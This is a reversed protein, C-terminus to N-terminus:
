ARLSEIQQLRSGACQLSQELGREAIVALVSTIDLDANYYCNAITGLVNQSCDIIDAGVSLNTQGALQARYLHRKLKGLNTTRAIVEQGVYCGKKLSMGNLRDLNIMQPLFVERLEQGVEVVGAEILQRRNAELGVPAHTPTLAKWVAIALEDNDARLLWRDANGLLRTIQLGAQEATDLATQPLETFWPALAAATDPGACELLIPFTNPTTISVKSFLVYKKLREILAKAISTPCIAQYNEGMRHLLLTAFVRGQPTCHATYLAQKGALKRVDGCLQGQLFTM